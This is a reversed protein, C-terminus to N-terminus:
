QRYWLLLILIFHHKLFLTTRNRMPLLPQLFAMLVQEMVTYVHCAGFVVVVVVVFAFSTSDERNHNRLQTAAPNYGGSWCCCADKANLSCELGSGILPLLRQM